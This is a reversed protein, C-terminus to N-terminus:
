IKIRGSSPNSFSWDMVLLHEPQFHLNVDILRKLSKALLVTGTLLVVALSVESILLLSGPRRFISIAPRDPAASAANMVRNLDPRAM